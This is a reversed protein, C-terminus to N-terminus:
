IKFQQVMSSLQAALRSLESASSNIQVVGESTNGAAKSVNGIAATIEQLGTASETVNSAVEKSYSSTTTLNKCIENITASQETVSSLIMQSIGHINNVIDTIKQIATVTNKTKDQMASIQATIDKTANATQKALAKVEGAVVAFGKGANGATAAEITANLALLNTQDAIVNIVGVIEGISNAAAGLENIAVLTSNVHNFAEDAIQSEQQCNITVERISNNMEEVSIAIANVQSSMEETASSIGNISNTSQETASAVTTTQSTMEEANSAIQTSAAVLEESASSLTNANEHVDKIIDHIKDVFKNFWSSLEGTEDENEIILRKTLDGNGQAIDKLIATTRNLPRVLSISFFIAIGASILIIVLSIISLTGQIQQVTTEIDNIYIGTCLIWNWPKFEACYSLKPEIRNKEEYYQWRYRLFGSGSKKCIDIFSQTLYIGDVDKQDSVDTGELDPRLPHAVMKMNYDNIFFYDKGSDGYFISRTVGKAKEQAEARSLSGNQEMKYYFNLMGMVVNVSEETLRQKEKYIANEVQHSSIFYIITGYFVLLSVTLIILKVKLKMKRFM